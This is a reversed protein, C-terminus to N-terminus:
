RIARHSHWTGHGLLPFLVILGLFGMTIARAGFVFLALHRESITLGAAM